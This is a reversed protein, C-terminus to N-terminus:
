TTEIYIEGTESDVKHPRQYQHYFTIAAIFDLYHANTRRPKFAEIPLDMELAFPNIVKLPQLVRQCNKMQERIEVERDQNVENKHLRRQYRMIRDDQELSTDLYLLFSRNANDEYIRERTTCGAVSVPGEVQLRVAKTKGQRDKMVITKSIRKKSQLERLPYLVSDAGDLDEILLLKNRLEHQGFYYLANESLSTLEIRDEEPILEGVREQLHTKGSGSAGLSVVHLPTSMKRSTFVLFMLLRNLEEGVVGSEGIMKNTRKLLHKAKLFKEAAMREADTLVKIESKANASEELADLRYAELDNVLESLVSRFVGSGMEFKIALRRSLKEVATDNYLDLNHRLAPGPESSLEVKLTARMRDLGELRIGGMISICLVDNEFILLEPNQTNLNDRKM